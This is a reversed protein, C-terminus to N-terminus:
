QANWGVERLNILLTREATMERMAYRAGERGKGSAREGGYPLHDLRFNSSGNIVVGGVRLAAAAQFAKNLNTTFVGAQLGYPTDNAWRLADAFEDYPVVSVVPGFVEDKMVRATFPPRDLITPEIVAKQGKGGVVVAAGEGVAEDVWERIRTATPLDVVTGVDTDLELPDGVKLRNTEDVMAELLQDVVSRQCFIRQVSICSQGSNSFGTRVLWRAAEGIQADAEVINAANGGLELIQKRLGALQAITRGAAVGGTFTIMDVGPHGALAQGVDARGHVLQVGLPPWGAELMLEVLRTAVHPAQPAPKIIVANGAALAPAVKHAILNLPANFPTIAAVVGIPFRLSVAFYGSGKPVRGPDLLVGHARGAEESADTFTEVARHVEDLTFKLPKGIEQSILSALERDHRAILDATNRLIRRRDHLPLTQTVEFGQRASDVAADVDQVSALTVRGVPQERYPDVTTVEGATGDAWRGQVWLRSIRAM